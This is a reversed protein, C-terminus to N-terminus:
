FENVSCHGVFSDGVVPQGGDFRQQHMELVVEILKMFRNEATAAVDVVQSALQVAESSVDFPKLRRRFGAIRFEFLRWM